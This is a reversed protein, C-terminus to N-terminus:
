RLSKEANFITEDHLRELERLESRTAKAQFAVAFTKVAVFICILLLSPMLEEPLRFTHTFGSRVSSLTIFLFPVYLLLTAGVSFLMFQMQLSQVAGSLRAAILRAHALTDSASEFDADEYEM